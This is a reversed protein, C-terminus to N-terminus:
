GNQYLTKTNTQGEWGHIEVLESADLPSSGGETGLDDAGGVSQM